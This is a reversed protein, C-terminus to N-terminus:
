LELSRSEEIEKDSGCVGQRLFAGSTERQSGNVKSGFGFWNKVNQQWQQHKQPHIGLPPEDSTTRLMELCLLSIQICSTGKFTMTSVTLEPFYFQKEKRKFHLSRFANRSAWTPPHATTENCRVCICNFLGLHFRFYEMAAEQATLANVAVPSPQLPEWRTM